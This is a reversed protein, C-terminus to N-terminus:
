DRKANIIKDLREQLKDLESGMILDHFLNTRREVDTSDGRIDLEARNRLDQIDTIKDKLRRAVDVLELHMDVVPEEKYINTQEYIFWSAMLLFISLSSQVSVIPAGKALKKLQEMMM